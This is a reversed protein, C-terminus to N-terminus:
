KSKTDIDFDNQLDDLDQRAQLCYLAPKTSLLLLVAMIVASTICWMCVALIVFLELYTLYISFLVGFFAMGFVVLPMYGALRNHWYRNLIWAALIALYGILGLVGVPLFGFLRAYRSNQVANCNGIPGCIAEMKLTEVFTLYFAVGVGLVCLAPILWDTWAPLSIAKGIVFAVLAYVLAAALLAMTAWAITFGESQAQAADVLPEDVTGVELTEIVQAVPVPDSAASSDGPKQAYGSSQPLTSIEAQGELIDAPLSPWDVGGSALSDDILGPLQEPIQRSGILVHEGIVLFPVVAQEKPLGYSAAVEVLKDVDEVSSVQILRVELQTGYKEQLPPLVNELVEHCHSCGDMWFM